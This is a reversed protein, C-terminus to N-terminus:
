NKKVGYLVAHAKEVLVNLEELSQYTGIENCREPHSQAFPLVGWIDSVLQASEALMEASTNQAKAEGFYVKVVHELAQSIASGDVRSLHVTERILPEDKSRFFKALGVTEIKDLITYGEKGLLTQLMRGMLPDVIVYYAKPQNEITPKADAATRILMISTAAISVQRLDLKGRNLYYEPLGIEPCLHINTSHREWALSCIGQSQDSELANYLKPSDEVRFHKFNTSGNSGNVTVFHDNLLSNAINAIRTSGIYKGDHTMAVLTRSSPDIQLNFDNFRILDEYNGSCIANQIDHVDVGLLWHTSGPQAHYDIARARAHSIVNERISVGIDSFQLNLWKTPIGDIPSLSIQASAPDVEGFSIINERMNVDYLIM